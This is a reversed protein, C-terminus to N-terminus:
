EDTFDVVEGKAEKKNKALLYKDNLFKLIEGDEIDYSVVVIGERMHKAGNKSALLSDGTSLEKITNFNFPIVDIGLSYGFRRSLVPGYFM